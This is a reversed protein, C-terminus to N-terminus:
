RPPEGIPAELRARAIALGPLGKSIVLRYLDGAEDRRGAEEHLGAMRVLLRGIWYRGRAGLREAMAPELLLGQAVPWWVALAEDAAAKKAASDSGRGALMDGLKFGAEARLDLPASALDRLRELITIASEFHSADQAAQARHCDALAMQAALLENLNSGQAYRNVLLEYIQQAVPFQNLRRLLDGQKMRAAFYLKGAEDKKVLEELLVYAQQYAADDGRREALVAAQFLAYPAYDHTSFDKAFQTLLAQANELGRGGTTAQIDAEVLYSQLMAETGTEDTRLRRLEALAEDTREMQFLAEAAVLRALGAVERALGPEVGALNGPLDRALKLAEEPQGAEKALRAELWALRARLDPAQAGASPDVRLKAIRGLASDRRGAAQLARALNWEAQWRTLPDLAPNAAWRDLLGAAVDLREAAIESICEQFMVQAVTSVSPVDRLVLGYSAAAAPYDKARFLAEAALLRLTARAGEDNTAAAAQVAYDAASRFRKLEWAVGALLTLARARMGSNPFRALQTKADADAQAYDLATLALDARVLLMEDTLVHPAARRLLEDLTERLRRRTEVGDAKEALLYLAMRQKAANAGSVLLQELAARGLAQAPAAIMGLILRFDDQASVGTPLAALRAQLYTVAEASRGLQALAVAYQLAYDNGVNRGVYRDASERLSEAQSESMEGQAIRLRERTLQLRARQWESVAAVLSQDYAATAEAADRAAEALQGKLFLLWAREEPVLMEVKLSGAFAQAAPWRKQQAAILGARLRYAATRSKGHQALARDAAEFEGMELRAAALILAAADRTAGGSPTQAIVREAQAAATATFGLALARAAKENSLILDGAAVPTPALPVPAFLTAEQACALSPMLLTILLLIRRVM